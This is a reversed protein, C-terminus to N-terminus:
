ARGKALVADFGCNCSNDEKMMCAYTHDGYKELAAELEAVRALAAALREGLIDAAGGLM